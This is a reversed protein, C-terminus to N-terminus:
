ELSGLQQWNDVLFSSVNNSSSHQKYPGQSKVSPDERSNPAQKTGSALEAFDTACTEIVALGLLVLRLIYTQKDNCAKKSM